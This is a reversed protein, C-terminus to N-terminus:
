SGCDIPTEGKGKYSNPTCYEQGERLITAMRILSNGLLIRILNKGFPQKKLRCPHFIFASDRGSGSVRKARTWASSACFTFPLSFIKRPYAAPTPFVKEMSSGFGAVNFRDGERLSKLGLLLAARAEAISEGAMSGSRDVVFVVDRPAQVAEPLVPKFRLM